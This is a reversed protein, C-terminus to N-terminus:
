METKTEEVIMDAKVIETIDAETIITTATIIIGTLQM